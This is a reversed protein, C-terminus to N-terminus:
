RSKPPRGVFIGAQWAEAMGYKIKRSRALEGKEKLTWDRSAWMEQYTFGLYILLDCEIRSVKKERLHFWVFDNFEQKSPPRWHLDPIMAPFKEFHKKVPSTVFDLQGYFTAFQLWSWDAQEKTIKDIRAERLFRYPCGRGVPHDLKCKCYGQAILRENENNSSALCAHCKRKRGREYQPNQCWVWKQQATDFHSTTCLGRKHQERFQLQYQDSLLGACNMMSEAVAIGKAFPM